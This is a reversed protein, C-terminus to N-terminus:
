DNVSNFKDVVLRYRVAISVIWFGLMTFGIVASYFVPRMSNDLDYQSFAPNGGVGPHLSATLRPLVFIFVIFLVFAFVSYVASVKARLREDSLSGRLVFYALYILVGVAAYNLRPDKPWFAGWTFRAWMMGTLLGLAGFLLAVRASEVALIDDILQDSNLYRISFIFSFLLILTMGFWMPVHFYLNRITEYLINRNPFTFGATAERGFDPKCSYTRMEGLTDPQEIAIGNQLFMTGDISDYIFVNYFDAKNNVLLDEPLDFTATLLKRGDVIIASACLTNSDNKIVVRLSNEAQDFNSNYGVIQLAAPQGVEFREPSIELVGPSLPVLLGTLTAFTLLAIAIYKWWRKKLLEVM